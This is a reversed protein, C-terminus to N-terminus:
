GPRAVRLDRRPLLGAPEVDEVARVGAGAKAREVDRAAGLLRRPEDRVGFGRRRADTVARERDVARGARHERQEALTRERRELLEVSGRQVRHAANEAIKAAAVPETGRGPADAHGAE